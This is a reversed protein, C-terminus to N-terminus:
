GVAWPRQGARLGKELKESAWATSVPQFIIVAHPFTLDVEM